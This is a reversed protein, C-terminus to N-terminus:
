ACGLAPGPSEGASCRGAASLTLSRSRLGFLFLRRRSRESGGGSGPSTPTARAGAGRTARGPVLYAASPGGRRARGGAQARLQRREVKGAGPMFRCNRGLPALAPPFCAAPVPRSRPHQLRALPTAMPPQLPALPAGRPALGLREAATLRTGESGLLPHHALWGPAPVLPTAAPRRRAEQAKSTWDLRAREQSPPEPFRGPAFDLLWTGAQGGGKLLPPSPSNREQHFNGRRAKAGLKGRGMQIGGVRKKDRSVRSALGFIPM